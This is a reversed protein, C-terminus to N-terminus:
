NFQIFDEANLPTGARWLEFHLHPGTTEEGTNGVIAIAEGGRVYDGQRKLLTSNHKYVTLLDRGHQVAIVYGTKVTWDTFVVVGDMAAAVRAEAKAVIDTGYHRVRENFGQTVLGEVPPFFHLLDEDAVHRLTFGLNFREREEMTNRFVEESESLAFELSDYKGEGEQMERASLASTDQGSLVVRLMEMYRDRKLVEAELSDVRLANATIMRRMQGDPYGPIFERLGTYAILLTTLGVLVVTGASLALLVHFRSLRFRMVEALTDENVIALKYKYRLRQWKKAIKKAMVCLKAGLFVVFFSERRIKEGGIRWRRGFVGARAEGRLVRRGMFFLAASTLFSEFSQGFAFPNLRLDILNM